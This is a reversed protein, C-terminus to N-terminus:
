LLCHPKDSAPPGNRCAARRYLAEGDIADGVQVIPLISPVADSPPNLVPRDEFGGEAYEVRRLSTRGLIGSRYVDLCDPIGARM